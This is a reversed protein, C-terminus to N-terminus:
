PPAAMAVCWRHRDAGHCRCGEGAPHPGVIHRRCRRPQRGAQANARFRHRRHGGGGGHLDHQLSPRRAGVGPEDALHPRRLRADGVRRDVALDGTLHLADVGIWLPAPHQTNAHGITSYTLVLSVAVALAAGRWVDGARRAFTLLLAALALVLLMRVILVSTTHSGVVKAWVSPKVADAPSGAVVKAGYLGFSGLTGALLFLWALWLLLRNSSADASQGGSQLALAGGGIVVILGILALLRAATDLRGVISSATTNGGVKDILAGVDVGSGLGVQFTFVGAVVHGDNSPVRWVVVYVGEALTPVSAQVATDDTVGQPAGLPVLAADQDYLEIDALEADIAENFDLVINPPGVDLVADASPVSADLAAHAFVQQAPAMVALVVAAAVAGQQWRM